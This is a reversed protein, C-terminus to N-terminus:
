TGSAACEFPGAAAESRHAAIQLLSNTTGLLTFLPLFVGLYIGCIVRDPWSIPRGRKRCGALFFLAPWGFVTSAGILNGIFDQVDSFFPIANAIFFSIGLTSLNLIAWHLAAAPVRTDATQPWLALHLKRHLPQATLLYSVLTHFCLLIGVASRASGPPM